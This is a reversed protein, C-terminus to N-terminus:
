SHHWTHTILTTQSYAELAFLIISLLM